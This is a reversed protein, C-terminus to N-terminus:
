LICKRYMSCLTCMSFNWYHQGRVLNEPSVANVLAMMVPVDGNAETVVLEIMANMSDALATDALSNFEAGQKLISTLVEIFSIRTNLDDHYGLGLWLLSLNHVNYKELRNSKFLALHNAM